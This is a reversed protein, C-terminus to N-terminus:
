GVSEEPLMVAYYIPKGYCSSYRGDLISRLRNINAADNSSILLCDTFLDCEIDVLLSAATRADFARSLIGIMEANFNREKKNKIKEKIRINSVYIVEKNNMKCNQFISKENKFFANESHSLHTIETTVDNKHLNRTKDTDANELDSFHTIEATVPAESVLALEGGADQESCKEAEFDAPVDDKEDESIDEDPPLFSLDAFAYWLQRSWKNPAHNGKVIVGLDCLKDILRWIKQSSFYPLGKKWGDVTVTCWWRGDHYFRKDGDNRNKLVWLRLTQIIVASELGYKKAEPVDFGHYYGATM